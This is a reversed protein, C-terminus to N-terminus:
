DWDNDTCKHFNVQTSNLQKQKLGEILKVEWNVFNPDDLSEGTLFDGVGFAIKFGIANLDVVDSADYANAEDSLNVIPNNRYILEMGKQIGYGMVMM